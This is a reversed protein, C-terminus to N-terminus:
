QSAPTLHSPLPNLPPHDSPPSAPLSHSSRCVSCLKPVFFVSELESSQPIAPLATPRSSTGRPAILTPLFHASRLPTSHARTRHVAALCAGRRCAPSHPRPPPALPGPPSPTQPPIPLPALPSPVSKSPSPCLLCSSQVKTPKYVRSPIM